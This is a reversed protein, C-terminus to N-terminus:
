GDVMEAVWAVAQAQQGPMLHGYTDLTFSASAHGLRTSVSKVDAGAAFLHSAHSHRLDHFRIRPVGARKSLRYFVKSVDDGVLPRGDISTFALGHDHYMAGFAMREELQIRRRARLAEVTVRDLDITRRGRETKPPAFMPAGAVDVGALQAKVNLRANDLDVNDWRLGLLEGRRMGTMAATRLLAFHQHDAIAELFTRLEAPSWTAM